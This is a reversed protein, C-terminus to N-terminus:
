VTKEVERNDPGELARINEETDKELTGKLSM